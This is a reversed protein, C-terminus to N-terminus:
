INRQTRRVNVGEEGHLSGDGWAFSTIKCSLKAMMKSKLKNVAEKKKATFVEPSRKEKVQSNPLLFQRREFKVRLSLITQSDQLFIM